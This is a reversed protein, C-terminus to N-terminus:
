TNNKMFIFPKRKSMNSLLNISINECNSIQTKKSYQLQCSQLHTNKYKGKKNLLISIALMNRLKKFLIRLKLFIIIIFFSFFYELPITNSKAPEILDVKRSNLTSKKVHFQYSHLCSLMVSMQHSTFCEIKRASIQSKQVSGLM